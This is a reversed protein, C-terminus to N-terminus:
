ATRVSASHAESPDFFRGSVAGILSDRRVVVECFIEGRGPFAHTVRDTQVEVLKGRISDREVVWIGKGDSESTRANGADPNAQQMAGDANFVYTSDPRDMVRYPRLIVERLELWRVDPLM